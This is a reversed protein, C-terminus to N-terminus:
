EVQVPRGDPLTIRMCFEWGMSNQWIKLLIKNVGAQLKVPVRDQDVTLGRAVFQEYVKKGNVWVKESDDVGLLLVADTADKVTIETYAYGIANDTDALTARLNIKGNPDKSVVPTWQVRRKGTMYRGVLNVNEETVYDVNWGKNQEGLDFPGVVWWHTVVGLLGQMDVKAGAAALGKTVAQMIETSPGRRAVENFLEIAKENQKAAVLANATGLLARIAFESLDKDGAISKAAEYAGAVPFDAIGAAAHSRAEKEDGAVNFLALYVQGAQAADGKARWGDALALLAARATQAVADVAEQRDRSTASVLVDLSEPLVADGLATLAASKMAVDDSKAAEMLIPAAMPHQKGGLVGLMAVQFKPPLTPYANVLARVVDVGQMNRLADIGIHWSRDKTANKMADIIPAVCSGDGMRGLGAMASEVALSNTSSLLERYAAVAADWNGGREGVSVILRLYADQADARTAQDAAILVAKAAPLDAPDGKYALARVAAIRVPLASAPLSGTAGSAAAGSALARIAELSPCDRLTGLSNLIAVQFAPEAKPLYERLATRAQPTGMEQLAARAKERLEADALLMAIPTVDFGNPVAVPLVRLARIQTERPQDAAVLTMLEKAVAARQTERGPVSVNAVIDSITNLAAWWVQPKAHGVLPLLKHVAEVPDERRLAQRAAVRAVEDDGGIQAVYDDIRTAIWTAGPLSLLMSLVLMCKALYTNM